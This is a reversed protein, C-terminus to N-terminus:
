ITAILLTCFGIIGASNPIESAGFIPHLRLNVNQCIKCETIPMDSLTLCARVIQESAQILLFFVFPHKVCIQQTCLLNKGYTQIKDFKGERNVFHIYVINFESKHAIM